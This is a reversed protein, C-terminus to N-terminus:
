RAGGNSPVATPAATEATIKELVAVAKSEWLALRLEQFTMMAQEVIAVAHFTEGRQAVLQALDLRIRAAGVRDLNEECLRIARRLLRGAETFMRMRGNILGLSHLAYSEGVIDGSRQVMGLVSTILQQAQEYRGQVLMASGLRYLIQAEVRPSSIERCMGLAGRLQGVALEHEGRDLSLQALQSVVYAQGVVDDVHQFGALSQEFVLAAREPRGEHYELLGLNRRVLALGHVDDLELFLELAPELATRAADMRRQSQHLSGLSCLLAATGRKNGAKRVAELAREHTHQWDDCYSRTEFLTVLTTALDWCLEDLGADAAQFVAACLSQRESELWGLPDELVQGVYSAHPQWRQGHGHLVTFDGGYLKKHAQEAMALWGGTVREVAALQAAPAEHVALQEKAFLRILDHFRYRPLGTVDSGAVDLLQADVLRELMDFGRHREDDTLASATWVPLSEAELLSMLRMVRRTEAALGDYTLSLSARVVMDGHVLEDLRHREDSLRGVMSALTWHPRAALRAGIIRLALPLGGMVDALAAAAVPESGLRQVGIIRRLLELADGSDMFDVDVLHSGALGTLRTRSTVIVGCTPSGPLLQHVQSESAADDLVVLVRRNALMSRYMDAREDASDPLSSGVAGLASLFRGLVEAPTAPQAQTGRLDCYLQGDPYTEAAVRHAVHVALTSKGIGAKGSINVVPMTTHDDSLVAEVRAVLDQRGVFDAITAPLQHPSVVNQVTIPAPKQQDLRLVQDDTLIATELKRLQDSPELGLHEIFLDRGTRYVDLAEPKRGSRYLALMLQGRPRERLPHETVLSQLEAILAHHRGLLLEMDICNELVSLRKEDLRLAKNQLTAAAGGLTPGRWLALASRLITSAEEVRGQRTAAESEAVRREFVVADIKDAAVRLLYGPQRTEIQADVGVRTFERRLASVCIQIQARATSPPTHEWVLDILQDMAVVRNAELLLAGLITQQRGPPVQVQEEAGIVEIPGLLKFILKDDPGSSM